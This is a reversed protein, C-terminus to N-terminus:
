PPISYRINKQAETCKQASIGFGYLHSRTSVRLRPYNCLRLVIKQVKSM